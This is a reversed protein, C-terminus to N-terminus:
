GRPRDAPITLFSPRRRPYLPPAASALILSGQPPRALDSAFKPRALLSLPPPIAAGKMGKAAAPFGRLAQM